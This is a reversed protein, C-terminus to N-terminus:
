PILLSSLNQLKSSFRVLLEVLDEILFNGGENGRKELIVIVEEWREVWKLFEFGLSFSEELRTWSQHAESHSVRFVGELFEFAVNKGCLCLGHREEKGNEWSGCVYWKGMCLAVGEGGLFLM